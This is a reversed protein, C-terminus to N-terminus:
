EINRRKVPTPKENRDRKRKEEVLDSQAVAFFFFLALLTSINIPVRQMIMLWLLAFTSLWGLVATFIVMQTEKVIRPM